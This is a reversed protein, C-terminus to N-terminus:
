HGCSSGPSRRRDHGDVRNLPALPLPLEPRRGAFSEGLSLHRVLPQGLFCLQELLDPLQLHLQLPELFFLSM